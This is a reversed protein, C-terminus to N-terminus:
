KNLVLHLKFGIEPNINGEEPAEPDPETMALNLPTMDISFEGHMTMKDGETSSTLEVTENLEVGIVKITIDAKGDKLSNLKVSANTFENTNFFDDEKKGEKESTGKLHAELGDKGEEPELDTVEISTLDITFDGSVDKGTVKVKGDTVNIIGRHNKDEEQGGDETPVVWAARWELKSEEANLSYNKTSKKDKKEEKATTDEAAEEGCATMGFAAFILAAYITKKM